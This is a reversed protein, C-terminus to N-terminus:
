ITFRMAPQPHCVPGEGEVRVCPIKPGSETGLSGLGLGPGVESEAGLIQVDIQTGKPLGRSRSYDYVLIEMGSFTHDAKCQLQGEGLFLSDSGAIKQITARYPGPEACTGSWVTYRDYPGNRVENVADLKFSWRSQWDSPPPVAQAPVATGLAAMLAAAAVLARRAPNM